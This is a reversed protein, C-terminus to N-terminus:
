EHCLRTITRTRKRTIGPRMENAISAERGVVDTILAREMERTKLM